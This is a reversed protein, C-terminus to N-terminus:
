RSHMLKTARMTFQLMFHIGIFSNLRSLLICPYVVLWCFVGLVLKNFLSAEVDGGTSYKWFRLFANTGQGNYKAASMSKLWQGFYGICLILGHSISLFVYNRISKLLVSLTLGFYNPKNKNDTHSLVFSISPLLFVTRETISFM